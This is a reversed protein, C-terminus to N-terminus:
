ELAAHVVHVLHAACLDHEPPRQELLVPEVLGVLGEDRGLRAEAFETRATMTSRRPDGAAVERGPPPVMFTRGLEVPRSSLSELIDAELSRFSTVVQGLRPKGIEQEDRREERVEEGAGTAM